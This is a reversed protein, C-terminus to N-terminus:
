LAKDKKQWLNKQGELGPTLEVQQDLLQALEKPGQYGDLQPVFVDHSLVTRVAVKQSGCEDDDIAEALREVDAATHRGYALGKDHEAAGLTVSHPSSTLLATLSSVDTSDTLSIESFGYGKEALMHETLVAQTQPEVPLSRTRQTARSDDLGQSAPLVAGGRSM